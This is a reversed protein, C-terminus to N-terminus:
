ICGIGFQLLFIDFCSGAIIHHDDVGDGTMEQMFAAAGNVFVAKGAATFEWGEVQRFKIFSEKGGKSMIAGTEDNEIYHFFHLFSQCELIGCEVWSLHSM